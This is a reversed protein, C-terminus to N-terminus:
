PAEEGGSPDEPEAYYKAEDLMSRWCAEDTHTASVVTRAGERAEQPQPADGLVLLGPLDDTRCILTWYDKGGKSVKPKALLKVEGLLGFNLSGGMEKSAFASPFLVGVQTWDTAM